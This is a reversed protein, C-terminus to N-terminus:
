RRDPKLRGPLTHPFMLRWLRFEDVSLELQEGCRKAYLVCAILAKSTIEIPYRSEHTGTDFFASKGYALRIAILKKLKRRSIKHEDRSVLRVLPAEKRRSM